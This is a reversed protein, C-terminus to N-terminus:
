KVEIYVYFDEYHSIDFDVLERDKYEEIINKVDELGYYTDEVDEKIDFITISDPYCTFNDFFEEVTDIIM